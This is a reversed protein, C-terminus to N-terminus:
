RRPRAMRAIRHEMATRYFLVSCRQESDLLDIVMGIAEMSRSGTTKRVCFFVMALNGSSEFHTSAM